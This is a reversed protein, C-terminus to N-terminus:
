LTKKNITALFVALVVLACAIFNGKLVLASETLSMLILALLFLLGFVPFRSKTSQIIQRRLILIVVVMIALFNILGVIGKSVFVQAFVNHPHAHQTVAEAVLGQIVYHSIVDHYNYGGVGWILYDRAFYQLSRLMELRVGVSSSAYPNAADPHHNQYQLYGMADNIATEFRPATTVNMAEHVGILLSGLFLFFVLGRYNKAVVLYYGVAVTVAGLMASRSTLMATGLTVIVLALVTFSRYKQPVQGHAWALAVILFLVTIPGTFLPGYVGVDRGYGLYFVQTLVILTNLFVAIAAGPGIFRMPDAFQRILLYLPIFLLFRLERELLRVSRDGWGHIVSSILYVVFFLGMLTLLSIELKTLKEDNKFKALYAVGLATLLIFVTSVWHRITVAFIPFLFLLLGTFQNLHTGPHPKGRVSLLSKITDLM